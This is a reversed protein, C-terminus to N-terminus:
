SNCGFESSEHTKSNIKVTACQQGGNVKIWVITTEYRLNKGKINVWSITTENDSASSLAHQKLSNSLMLKAFHQVDALDSSVSNADLVDNAEAPQYFFWGVFVMALILKNM